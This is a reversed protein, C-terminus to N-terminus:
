VNGAGPFFTLLQNLVVDVLISLQLMFLFFIQNFHTLILICM